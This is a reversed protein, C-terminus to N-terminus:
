ETIGRKQEEERVKAEMNGVIEHLDDKTANDQGFLDELDLVYDVRLRRSIDNYWKETIIQMTPTRIEEPMAGEGNWSMDGTWDIVVLVSDAFTEKEFLDALYKAAEPAIHRAKTFTAPRDGRETVLVKM